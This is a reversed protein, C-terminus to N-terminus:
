KSSDKKNILIENVSSLEYILAATVRTFAFVSHYSTKIIFLYFVIIEEVKVSERCRSPVASSATHKAVHHFV